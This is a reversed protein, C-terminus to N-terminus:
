SLGFERLLRQLVPEIRAQLEANAYGIWAVNDHVSLPADLPNGDADTVVVGAEEAILATCLDYPHACLRGVQEGACARPLILPRLDAIFRDHGAMLEYLQGGSSAYQDDFLLPTGDEPIGMLEAFLAEELRVTLEKGGPFFKVISAFGHRLDTAPSPALTAPRAVTPPEQALDLTIGDVGSGRLAWLQDAYRARSTPLETMVACVTDRLRTAPGWNPAVASLVWAGRKDYMLGRTGDIPDVILRFSADEARAGEPFVQEGSESIGEAVLVLPGDQAWVECAAVLVAEVDADIRYIADGGRVATVTSREATPTASERLAALMQLHLGRLADIWDAADEPM